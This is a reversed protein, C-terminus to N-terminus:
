LSFIQFLIHIKLTLEVDITGDRVLDDHRLAHRARRVPPAGQLGRRLLREVQGQLHQVGQRLRRTHRPQRRLLHRQRARSGQEGHRGQVRAALVRAPPPARHRRLEGHRPARRDADAPVPHPVPAARLRRAVPADVARVRRGRRRHGRGPRPAAPDAGRVGLGARHPRVGGRAGGHRAAQVRGAPPVAEGRVGARVAHGDGDGHGDALPSNSLDIRHLIGFLRDM